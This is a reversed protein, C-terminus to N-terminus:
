STDRTLNIFTKNIKELRPLSRLEAGLGRAGFQSPDPLIEDNLNWMNKLLSLISQDNRPALYLQSENGFQSKENNIIRFDQCYTNWMSIFHIARFTKRVLVFGALLQIDNLIKANSRDVGM